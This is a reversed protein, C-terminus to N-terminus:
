IQPIFFLMQFFKSGTIKERLLTAIFLAILLTVNQTSAVWLTVWVSRYFYSSLDFYFLDFAHGPIFVSKFGEFNNWSINTLDYLDLNCFMGIFSYAIPFANFIIFGILPILALVIALKAEKKWAKKQKNM